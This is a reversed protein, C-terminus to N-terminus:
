PTGGGVEPRQPLIQRPAADDGPDPDEVRRAPLALVVVVVLVLLQLWLLRARTSGDYEAVVRPGGAPLGFAQAWDANAAAPAAVSQLPAGDATARWGGDASEALVLARGSGGAPLDADVLPGGSGAPTAPVEVAVGDPAVARVLSTVGALRWLAEGGASSLRRLGPESDLTRVLAQEGPDALQVYRVAYAALQVVEDGGRGSALAAVLPDIRDWAQAPPGTDGDGLVPGAGNVLSYTIRGGQERRLV